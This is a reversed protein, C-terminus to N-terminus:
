KQRGKMKSSRYRFTRFMKKLHLFLYHWITLSAPLGGIFIWLSLRISTELAPDLCYGSYVKKIPPSENEILSAKLLCIAEDVSFGSGLVTSIEEVFELDYREKGTSAVAYIATAEEMFYGHKKLHPMVDEIWFEEFKKDKKSTISAYALQFSSEPIADYLFCMNSNLFFTGMVAPEFNVRIIDLFAQLFESPREFQASVQFCTKGGKESYLQVGTETFRNLNYEKTLELFEYIGHMIEKLKTKFESSNKINPKQDSMM